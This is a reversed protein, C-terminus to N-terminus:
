FHYDKYLKTFEEDAIKPNVQLNLYEYSEFLGKDDYVRTLLPILYLKDVYIVTMKAYANPVVIQQGEKVDHYSKVKKNNERIMYESVSLDRAITILTENKKVTYPVFAFDNDLITVKYADRGNLKEEGGYLFYKDFKDGVQVITHDIIGKFYDFGIEHITHHQDATMLSGFPNLNLNIYPFSGPNVLADGNNQGEVWLVEAGKVYIYLKRPFRQLKISSGYNKLSGEIRESIKLDYKLTKINNLAKMMQTILERSNMLPLPERATRIGVSKFAFFLCTVLSIFFLAPKKV